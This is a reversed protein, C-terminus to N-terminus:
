KVSRPHIILSKANIKVAHDFASAFHDVSTNLATVRATVLRTALPRYFQGTMQSDLTRAFVNAHFATQFAM